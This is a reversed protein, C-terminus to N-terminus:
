PRRLRGRRGPWPSPAPGAAPPPPSLTEPDPGRGRRGAQWAMAYAVSAALSCATLALLLARHDGGFSALLASAGLPGAARALVAPAALAGAAAAYRQPGLLWLPASARVLTLLGLGTGYLLVFGACAAGRAGAAGPLAMYLSGLGLCCLGLPMLVFTLAGLAQPSLREAAVLDLLRGGSQMPGIAAAVWLATSAPLGLGQLLGTMVAALAAIVFGQAAFAAGLWLLRRDRRTTATPQPGTPPTPSPPTAAPQTPRHRPLCAAHLPACVLLHLGGFLLATCRWGLAQVLADTLPWFVSSALGGALTLLAIPRRHAGPRSAVVLAFAPEYLTAAMAVGMLLWAALFPPLSHAQSLLGFAVGALLSGATM